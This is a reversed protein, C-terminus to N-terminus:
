WWGPITLRNILGSDFADQLPGSVDTNPRLFLNFTSTNQQAIYSYDRLQQTFAQYGVNKVESLTNPTVGDPVRTSGGVNFSLKDGIDYVARVAAEGAQGLQTSTQYPTLFSSGSAWYSYSSLSTSLGSGYGYYSYSSLTTSLGAALGTPDTANLPDNRVYAYLNYGAKYGVPDAQLFRGLVPSYHRARYYYLGGAEPDLRQGTYGFPSAATASTGYAQYASKALTGAPSITAIISGQLDPLVTTRTAAPVNIQSLVDNAGAGYAYWRLVTGTSGDYELVERNDADTVSITTTGAITRSKRRGQADYAYSAAAGSNVSVMRNEADYGYTRTSDSTLNGNADYSAPAGGVATYQNLANPTYAISPPGTPYYLWTNDDVTQGTRRNTKDYSHGFSVLPGAAPATAAPAPDWTAGTPRNLADYTYTTTYTVTSGGPPFALAIPNSNDSVRTQRGALDYSYDVVPGSPPTKRIVRYLTDYLLTFTGGARSTRQVVNDAQDYTATETSGGPYTTLDLRNFQDYHYTTTNSNADIVSALKGDDTWTQELMATTPKIARNYTLRPRSVNDYTLETVRGMADTQTVQRDLLDYQYHTTNGNADTASALKGTPTWTSSATRLVTGGASQEAQLLRGEADYSNTTVVGGPAAATAPSTTTVLRRAADWASTTVNDKPDTVSIVDGWADYAYLTTRNLRGPM